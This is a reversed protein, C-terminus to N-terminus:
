CDLAEKMSIKRLVPIATDPIDFISRIRQASLHPHELIALRADHMKKMDLTHDFTISSVACCETAVSTGNSERSTALKLTQTFNVPHFRHYMRKARSDGPVIGHSEICTKLATAEVSHCRHFSTRSILFSGLVSTHNRSPYGLYMDRNPDHRQLYYCLHLPMVYTTDSVVLLFDPNIESYIFALSENFHVHADSHLSAWTDKIIKQRRRFVEATENTDTPIVLVAFRQHRKHQTSMSTSFHHHEFVRHRHRALAVSLTVAVTLFGFVILFAGRAERNRNRKCEPGGSTSTRSADSSEHFSHLHRRNRVM